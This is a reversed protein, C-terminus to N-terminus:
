HPRSTKCGALIQSPLQASMNHAKPKYMLCTRSLRYWPTCIHLHSHTYLPYHQYYDTLLHKPPTNNHINKPLKNVLVEHLCTYATNIHQFRIHYVSTQYFAHWTQSTTDPPKDKKHVTGKDYKEGGSLKQELWSSSRAVTKNDHYYTKSWVIIGMHPSTQVLLIKRLITCHMEDKEGRINKFQIAQSGPLHAAVM